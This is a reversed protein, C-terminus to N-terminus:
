KGGSIFALFSGSFTAVINSWLLDQNELDTLLIPFIAVSCSKQSNKSTEGFNETRLTKDHKVSNYCPIINHSVIRFFNLIFCIFVAM